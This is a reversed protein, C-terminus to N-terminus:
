ATFTKVYSKARLQQVYSEAAQTFRQRYLMQRVQQEIAMEDGGGRIEVLKILHLGNPTRIPGAIDGPKMKVVEKSFLEPLQNLPRWGLDDGGNFSRRLEAAKATAVKIENPTPKESLPILYDTLRFESTENMKQQNHKIYDRIQEDTIV